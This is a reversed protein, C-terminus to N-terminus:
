KLEKKLKDMDNKIKTVANKFTALGPGASTVTQTTQSGNTVAGVIANEINEALSDCLGVLGNIVSLLDQWANLPFYVCKDKDLIAVGDSEGKGAGAVYATIVFGDDSQVNGSQAKAKIIDM